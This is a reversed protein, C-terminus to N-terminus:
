ISIGKKADQQVIWYGNFLSQNLALKAITLHPLGSNFIVAVLHIVLTWYSGSTNMKIIIAGLFMLVCVDKCLIDTSIEM